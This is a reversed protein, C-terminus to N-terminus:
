RNRRVVPWCVQFTSSLYKSRWASCRQSPRARSTAPTHSTSPGRDPQGGRRRTLQSRNPQGTQRLAGRDDDRRRRRRDGRRRVTRGPPASHRPGPWQGPRQQLWPRVRRHIAARRGRRRRHSPTPRRHGGGVTHTLVNQVLNDLISLVEAAPLDVLVPSGTELNIDVSRQQASAVVRWFGMRKGICAGLDCITSEESGTSRVDEILATVEGELHVIDSILGERAVPDVVSDAQLRLAAIPTRLRHSLDAVREREAALLEALREVLQNFARGSEAVEEPGDPVVRADLDGGAWRHAADSLERVPKVISAALRDALPVAGLVVILGLIALILWSTAVGERLDANSVFATVVLRAGSTQFTVPVVALVGGDIRAVIAGDVALDVANDPTYGDGLRRGDPLFVVLDDSGFSDLVFQVDIAGPNRSTARASAALATAVGRADSQAAALSRLEAQSRLSLGLPVLFGIVLMVALAVFVWALRRRM